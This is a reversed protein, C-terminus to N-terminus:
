LLYVSIEKSSQIVKSSLNTRLIYGFSTKSESITHVEGISQLYYFSHGFCGKILNHVFIHFRINFLITNYFPMYTKM